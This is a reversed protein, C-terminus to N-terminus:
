KLIFKGKIVRHFIHNNYYGNKSHVCFNEVTKPCLKGFLQIHIDGLSTHITCEDYIKKMNSNLDTSSLLDKNSLKENIVDREVVNSEDDENAEPNRRTFIYFRNRKYANTFLSPDIIVNDLNPNNAAAMEITINAKDKLSNLNQYLSISLPRINESKGIIKICKNTYWNVMKVGFMTPYFIFYGSQDFALRENKLQDM